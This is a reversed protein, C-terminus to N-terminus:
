RPIVKYRSRRTVKRALRKHQPSKACNRWSCRVCGMALKQSRRTICRMTVSHSNARSHLVRFVTADCKRARESANQSANARKKKEAAKIIEREVFALVCNEFSYSKKKKNRKRKNDDYTAFDARFTEGCTHFSTTPHVTYPGSLRLRPRLPSLSYGVSSPPGVPHKGQSLWHRQTPVNIFEQLLSFHINGFM